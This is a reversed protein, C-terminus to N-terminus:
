ETMDSEKCDRLCYGALRKQGHSEGPLFGPTPQWKRRWPIKGVWPNFGLRRCQPIRSRQVVQSAGKPLYKSTFKEKDKDRVESM